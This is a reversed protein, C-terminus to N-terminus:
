PLRHILSILNDSFHVLCYHLHIWYEKVCVMGHLAVDQDDTLIIVFNPRAASDVKAGILALLAILAIPRRM